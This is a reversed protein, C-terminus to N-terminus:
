TVKNEKLDSRIVENWKRRPQVRLFSHSVKFTRCKISGNERPSWVMATTQGRFIEENGLYTRLEEASIKDEPRFNAM